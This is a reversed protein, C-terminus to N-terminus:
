RMELSFLPRSQLLRILVSFMYTNASIGGPICAITLVFAGEVFAAGSDIHQENQNLATRSDVNSRIGDIPM